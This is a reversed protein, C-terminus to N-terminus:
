VGVLCSRECSAREMKNIIILVELKRPTCPIHHRSWEWEWRMMMTHTHCQSTHRTAGVAAAMEVVGLAAARLMQIERARAGVGTPRYLFVLTGEKSQLLLRQM